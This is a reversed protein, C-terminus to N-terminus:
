EDCGGHEQVSELMKDIENIMEQITIEGEVFRRALEESKESPKFGSLGMNARAFDVAEQRKRRQIRKDLEEESLLEENDIRSM